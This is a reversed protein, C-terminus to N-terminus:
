RPGATGLRSLADFFGVSFSGLGPGASGGHRAQREAEEACTGYLLLTRHVVELLDEEQTSGSGAVAAAVVGSLMCGAGTVSRMLASGTHSVLVRDRSVAYDTPGTVALVCSLEAALARLQIEGLAAEGAEVGRSPFRLGALAAAESANCRIVSVRVQSLLASLFRRRYSSAGAGVPDLIVPLGLENARQGALVMARLREDSPMGTNLLLGQSLSTIEAAEAANDACIACGGAALIAAAVDRITVPNTIAHILPRAARVRAFLVEGQASESKAERSHEPM